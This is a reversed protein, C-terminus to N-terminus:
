SIRRTKTKKAIPIQWYGSKLYLTSFFRAGGLSAHIDQILPLPYQDSVLRSNLRRFDVCFRYMGDKKQRAIRAFHHQFDYAQRHWEPDNSRSTKSCRKCPRLWDILRQTFRNLIDLPSPLLPVRAPQAPEFFVSLHKSFVQLM